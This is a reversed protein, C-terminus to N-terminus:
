NVSFPNRQVFIEIKLFLFNCPAFNPSHPAHELTPIQKGALFQRIRQLWIPLCKEHESKSNFNTEDKRQGYEVGGSNNQVVMEDTKMTVPHGPREDEVDERRESL